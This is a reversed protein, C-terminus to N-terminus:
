QQPSIDGSPKVTGFLGDMRDLAREKTRQTSATTCDSLITVAYDREIANRATSEVCVNTMFGALLLSSIGATTLYTELPTRFFANFRHKTLYIDDDRVDLGTAFAAEKSNPPCPVRGFAEYKEEWEPSLAHDPNTVRVFIPRKGSERYRSLFANISEIAAAAREGTDASIRGYAPDCFYKQPDIVILAPDSVQSM